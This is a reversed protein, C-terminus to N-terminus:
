KPNRFMPVYLSFCSFRNISSFLSSIPHSMPSLLKHQSSYSLFLHRIKTCRRNSPSNYIYSLVYSEAHFRILIQSYHVSVSNSYHLHVLSMSRNVFIHDFHSNREALTILTATIRRLLFSKKVIM